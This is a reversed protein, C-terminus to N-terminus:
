NVNLCAPGSDSVAEALRTLAQEGAEVIPGEKSPVYLRLEYKAGGMFNVAEVEYEESILRFAIVDNARNHGVHLSLATQQAAVQMRCIVQEPAGSIAVEMTQIPLDTKPACGVLLAM